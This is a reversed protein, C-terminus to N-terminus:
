LISSKLKTKKNPSWFTFSSHSVFVKIHIVLEIELYAGIRSNTADFQVKGEKGKSCLDGENDLVMLYWAALSYRATFAERTRGLLRHNFMCSFTLESCVLQLIKGLTLM